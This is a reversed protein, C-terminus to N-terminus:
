FTGSRRSTWRRWIRRRTRSPADGTVSVMVRDNVVGQLADDQETFETRQIRLPKGGGLGAM